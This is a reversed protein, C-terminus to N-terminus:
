RTLCQIPGGVFPNLAAAVEVAKSAKSAPTGSMGELIYCAGLAIFCGSGVAAFPKVHEAVQFDEEIEFLRGRYGILFNGGEERENKKLLFGGEGFLTRINPILRTVMYEHADMDPPCEPIELQYRLLQIMRYSTTCGFLLGGKIWIKPDKRDAKYWSNSGASDAAMSVKKKKEDIWGVICTM